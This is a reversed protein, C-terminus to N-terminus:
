SARILLQGVLINDTSTLNGLFVEIYDNTEMDFGWSLPVAIQRGVNITNTVLSTNDLVGNKALTVTLARDNGFVPQMSISISIKVFKNRKGLYTVRGNTNVAIHQSSGQTFVGAALVKDTQNVITTTASANLSGLGHTNTEEISNCSTFIWGADGTTITDLGVMGGQINILSVYGITDGAMNAGSAEGKLFKSGTITSLLAVNSVLFANFTATALDLFNLTASTSQIETWNEIALRRITVDGYIWGQGTHLTVLINYLGILPKELFGLDKVVVVYVWRFLLSGTTNGRTDVLTGNACSVSIEKLVQNGNPCTFMLGTGTYTLLIIRPDVSRIVSNTGYVFRNATSINKVLLYDVDNQLTIVGSVPDPFDSLESVIRTNSSVAVQTNDIVLNNNQQTITIGNGAKLRRLNITSATRNQIIAAGDRSNGADNLQGEITLGGEPGTTVSVGKNGKVKKLTYNPAVGGLIPVGSASGVSTLAGTLGMSLALDGVTTRYLTNNSVIPLQDSTVVDTKGLAAAVQEAITKCGMLIVMQLQRVALTKM